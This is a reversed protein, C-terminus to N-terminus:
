VHSASPRVEPGKDSHKGPHWVLAAKHYGKKVQSTSADRSINLLDYLSRQEEKERLKKAQSNLRCFCILFDVLKASRRLAHSVSDDRSFWSM